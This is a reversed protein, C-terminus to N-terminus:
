PKEVGPPMPYGIALLSLVVTTAVVAVLLAVVPVLSSTNGNQESQVGYFMGGVFGMALVALTFWFYYPNM